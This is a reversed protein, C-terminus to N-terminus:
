KGSYPRNPDVQGLYPKWNPDPNNRTQTKRGRYRDVRRKEQMQSNSVAEREANRQRVEENYKKVEANYKKVEQKQKEYLRQREENEKKMRANFEKIEQKRREYKTRKDVVDHADGITEERNENTRDNEHGYRNRVRKRRKHKSSKNYKKHKEPNFNRHKMNKHLKKKWQSTDGAFSPAAVSLLFLITLLMAIRKM